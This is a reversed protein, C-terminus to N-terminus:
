RLERAVSDAREQLPHAAGIGAQWVLGGEPIGGAVQSQVNPEADAAM